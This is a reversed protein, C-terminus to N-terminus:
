KSVQTRGVTRGAFSGDTLRVYRGVAAGIIELAAAVADADGEVTFVRAPRELRAFAPHLEAPGRDANAARGRARCAAASAAPVETWSRVDARTLACLDRVSSGAPGIVFGAALLSVALRAGGTPTPAAALIGQSAAEVPAVGEGPRRPGSPPRGNANTAFAADDNPPSTPTSFSSNSSPSLSSSSLPSPLHSSPSPSSSARPLAHLFPQPLLPPPPPPRRREEFRPSLSAAAAAPSPWPPTSSATRLAGPPSFFPTSVSASPWTAGEAAAAAASGPFAAAALAAATFFAQQQGQQGEETEEAENSFRPSNGESGSVFGFEDLALTLSLDQHHQQQNQHQQDQLDLLAHQQASASAAPPMAPSPQAGGEGAAGAGDALSWSGGSGVREM